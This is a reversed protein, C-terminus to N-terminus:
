TSHDMRGHISDEEMLSAKKINELIHIEMELYIQEKVMNSVNSGSERMGIETKGLIFEMDRQRQTGGSV